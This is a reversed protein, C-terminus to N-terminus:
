DSRGKGSEGGCESHVNMPPRLANLSQMVQESERHRMFGNDIHVAIVRAAGLARHLLAACVTSDVGGSVMVKIPIRRKLNDDYDHHAIFLCPLATCCLHKLYHLYLLEHIVDGIMASMM